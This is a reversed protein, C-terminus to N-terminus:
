SECISQASQATIPKYLRAPIPIPSRLDPSIRNIPVLQTPKVQLRLCFETESFNHKYIFVPRYIIDLFMINTHVQITKRNNM